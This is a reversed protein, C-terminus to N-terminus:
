ALAHLIPVRNAVLGPLRETEPWPSQLKEAVSHCATVHQSMSHCATVHQSISHCATLYHLEERDSM